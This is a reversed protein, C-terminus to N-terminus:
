REARCLAPDRVIGLANVVPREGSEDSPRSVAVGELVMISSGGGDLNVAESAGLRELLATLEPLTMGDSYGEQRGDVVIVWLVEQAPDYGVATRPHRAAAFAPLDSVRLNGVREGSKLLLPFGGIVQTAGDPRSRPVNWGVRLISDGLVRPDGM